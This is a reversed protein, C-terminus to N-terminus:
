LFSEVYELVNRIKGTLKKAEPKRMIKVCYIKGDDLSDIYEGELFWARYDRGLNMQLIPHMNGSLYKDFAQGPEAGIKLNKQISDKKSLFTDEVEPPLEALDRVARETLVIKVAM